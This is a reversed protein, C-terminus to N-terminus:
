GNAGGFRDRVARAKRIELERAYEVASLPEAEPHRPCFTVTAKDLTELLEEDTPGAAPQPQSTQHLMEKAWEVATWWGCYEASENLSDFPCAAEIEEDTPWVTPTPQALCAHAESVLSDDHEPHAVKYSHLENALRRILELSYNTETM